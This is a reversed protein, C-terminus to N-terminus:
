TTSTSSSRCRSRSCGAVDLTDNTARLRPLEEPSLPLKIDDRLSAWAERSLADFLPPTRTSRAISPQSM